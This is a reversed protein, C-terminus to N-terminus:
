SPRVDNGISLGDLLRRERSPLGDLVSKTCADGFAGPDEAEIALGFAAIYVACELASADRFRPRLGRSELSRREAESPELRDLAGLIRHTLFAAMDPYLYPVPHAHDSPAHYAIVHRDADLSWFNYSVGGVGMQAFPHFEAPQDHYRFPRIRNWPEGDVLELAEIPDISLGGEHMDLRDEWASAHCYAFLFRFYEEPMSRGFIQAIRWDDVREAWIPSAWQSPRFAEVVQCHSCVWDHFTPHSTKLTEFLMMDAKSM